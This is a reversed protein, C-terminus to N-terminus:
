GEIKSFNAVEDLTTRVLSLLLLRNNRIGADKDNVTVRDFFADLAPRLAALQTMAREFHEAAISDYIAPLDQALARNLAVEEPVHFLAADPTGSYATKDRKEEAALINAARRYAILLNAGDETQLFAHLATARNVVRVIDDDGHAFVAAVRDHAIGEDRLQVKLRDAFFDLLEKKLEGGSPSGFAAQSKPPTSNPPTIDGRQACSPVSGGRDEGKWPSPISAALAIGIPLRLGNELIVRIIGLAARRLAFPDRSGTPKEGIAFMVALTDLKDALAVAISVPATPVADHAGQPRYHDRIADAVAVPENQELAYYRGMIGQLEAFEGVMGSMLDAKCLEGARKAQAKDCGPISAALTEALVTVRKVKDAMTGLKAHFVVDSLKANMADLGWKRDQDWFFRGDSLRANIVRENGARIKAGGDAAMMNSFTLFGPAMGGDNKLLTFYKQHSRMVTQLAEPPVDMFSEDFGGLTPTPWEVLGTVEELLGPDPKAALNERQATEDASTQISAKRVDWRPEVFAANLKGVYADPTAIAIAQPALFRHGFTQDNATLHGFTVPLVSGDLLCLINHM